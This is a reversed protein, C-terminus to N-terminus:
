DGSRFDQEELNIDHTTPKGKKAAWWAKMKKSAAERAAENRSKSSDKKPREDM